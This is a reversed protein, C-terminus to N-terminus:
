IISIDIQKNTSLSQKMFTISDCQFLVFFFFFFHDYFLFYSYQRPFGFKVEFIGNVFGASERCAYLNCIRAVIFKLRRAFQIGRSFCNQIFGNISIITERITNISKGMRAFEFHFAIPVCRKFSTTSNERDITEFTEHM